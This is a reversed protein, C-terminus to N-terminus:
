QDLYFAELEYTDPFRIQMTDKCYWKIWGLPPSMVDSTKEMDSKELLTSVLIWPHKIEHIQFISYKYEFGITDATDNPTERIPNQQLVSKTIWLTNYNLYTTWPIFQTHLQFCKPMPSEIWFEKGIANIKIRIFDGKSELAIVSGNRYETPHFFWKVNISDNGLHLTLAHWKLHLFGRSDNRNAASFVPINEVKFSISAVGIGM